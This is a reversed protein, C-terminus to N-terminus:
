LTYTDNIVMNELDYCKEFLFTKLGKKFSALETIDKLKVPLMNYLRPACNEFTRDGIGKYARPEFLRHVDSGHRVNMITSLEFPLLKEKLYVPYGSRTAKFVLLCIKFIIRAKIPLWHLTILKPTIRDFYSLRTVLRAAKKQTTQLKMLLNNPLRHYVSNCYDLKSMIHSHVLMKTTDENLYKRIFAINKLQYNCLRVTNLIQKDMKLNKDIVVGLNRVSDVLPVEMTCIKMKEISVLNKLNDKSGFMMCVTKEENLKLKKRNMWGMVDTMILQIKEKCKEVNEFPFYFQTDDAYLKFGVNHSKLINSLETTYINFLTPGLISGQPVGRKLNKIESSDSSIHVSQLRDKLYSNFWMLAGEEIGLAKLDELLIDHDVTDFAASLDLMVLIGCKSEDVIKVLDNMVACITTETSHNERYASQAESILGNEKLYILLQEHVTAEIIKSLNSLNSIPRYSNLVESDGKGKYTPIVCALKESKPFKSSAISMNIINLYIEELKYFNNASKLDAMPVPDNECITPNIKKMIRKLKNMDITKLMNLKCERTIDTDIITTTDEEKFTECIKEIKEDFFASFREALIKNNNECKPLIKERKKGLLEDLDRWKTNSKTKWSENYYKMKIKKIQSNYHNRINNYESRSQISRVRRWKSEARRKMKKLAHLEGNFWKSKDKIVVKKVTQPCMTEYNKRFVQKYGQTYCDICVNLENEVDSKQCECEFNFNLFDHSSYDILLQANFKKKDRIIIDKRLDVCKVINLEFKILKHFYSITFDDEIEINTVIESKDYLLLDLIHDSRSTPDPVGNTLNYSEILEKFENIITGTNLEFWLNFDGCIYTRDFSDISELYNSFEIIFNSRSTSPPRYLAIIRIPKNVYTMEIDLHEFTVYKMTNRIKINNFSKAILLGVGGGKRDIRPLHYFSHTDPTLENIKSLESENNQLWTETLVCIDFNKENIMERIIITKNGVSQVNLLGCKINYNCEM